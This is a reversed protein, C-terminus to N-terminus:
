SCWRIIDAVWIVGGWRGWLLAGAIIGAGAAALFLLHARRNM